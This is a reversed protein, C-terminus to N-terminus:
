GDVERERGRPVARPTEVGLVGAYQWRLESLDAVVGDTMAVPERPCLRRPTPHITAGNM